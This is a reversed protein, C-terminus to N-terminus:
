RISGLDLNTGKLDVHVGDSAVTVNQYNLGAPAQLVMRPALAELVLDIIETPVELSGIRASPNGLSFQGSAPDIRPTGTISFETAQGFVTERVGLSLQGEPVYTVPVGIFESLAAFDLRAAIQAAAVKVQSPTRVPAITHFNGTAAAVQLPQTRGPVVQGADLRVDEATIQVTSLENTALAWLMSPDGISTRVPRDTGLKTAVTSSIQDTIRSRLQVEAIIVGIAAVVVLILFVVLPGRSRPKRAASM